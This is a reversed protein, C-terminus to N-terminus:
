SEKNTPIVNILGSGTRVWDQGRQNEKSKRRALNESCSEKM